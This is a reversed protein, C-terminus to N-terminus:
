MGPEAPCREQAAWWSRAERPDPHTHALPGPPVEASPEQKELELTGWIKPSDPM